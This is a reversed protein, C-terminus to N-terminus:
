QSGPWKVLDCRGSFALWACKLRHRIADFGLPRAPVWKGESIETQIKNADMLQHLLYINPAKKM